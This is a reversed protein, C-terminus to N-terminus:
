GAPGDKRYKTLSIIYVGVVIILSGTIKQITIVDGFLVKGAFLSVVYSLSIFPYLFSLQYNRGAWIWYVVRGVYITALFIALSLPVYLELLQLSSVSTNVISIALYKGIVAGSLNLVVAVLAVFLVKDPLKASSKYMGINMTAKTTLDLSIAPLEPKDYGRM